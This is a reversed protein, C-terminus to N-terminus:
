RGTQPKASNEGTITEAKDEQIVTKAAAGRTINKVADDRTIAKTGDETVGTFNIMDNIIYLPRGKAEDYIRGIYEGIIGLMMLVMGNLLLSFGLTSAWGQVTKSTFLKQYLVILLYVFSCLSVAMGTYSALKLPKHSFSTIADFAFRL